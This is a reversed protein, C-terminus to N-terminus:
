SDEDEEEKTAVGTKAAKEDRRKKRSKLTRAAGRASEVHDELEEIEQRKSQYFANIESNPKGDAAMNEMKSALELAWTNKEKLMKKMEENGPFEHLEQAANRSKGAM